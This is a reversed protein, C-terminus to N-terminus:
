ILSSVEDGEMHLVEKEVMEITELLTRSVAVLHEMLESIESARIADARKSSGLLKKLLGTNEEHFLKKVIKMYIDHLIEHPEEISRYSDLSALAQGPGYYWRGFACDTHIVPVKSEDLPLGSVLAQAYSRWKIHASKAARLQALVEKKKLKNSMDTGGKKGDNETSVARLLTIVDKEKIKKTM